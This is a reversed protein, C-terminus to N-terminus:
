HFRVRYWDGHTVGFLRLKENAMKIRVGPRKNQQVHRQEHIKMLERADGNIFRFFRVGGVLVNLTLVTHFVQLKPYVFFGSIKKTKDFTWVFCGYFRYVAHGMTVNGACNNLDIGAIVRNYHAVVDPDGVAEHMALRADYVWTRTENESDGKMFLRCLENM